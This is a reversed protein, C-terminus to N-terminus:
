RDEHRNDRAEVAVDRAHEAREVRGEADDLDRRHRAARRRQQGRMSATVLVVVLVVAVAVVIVVVGTDVAAVTVGSLVHFGEEVSGLMRWNSGPQPRLLGHSEGQGPRSLPAARLRVVAEWGVRCEVTTRRRQPACHQKRRLSDCLDAANSLVGIRDRVRRPDM